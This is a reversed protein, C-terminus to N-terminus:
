HTLCRIMLRLQGSWRCTAARTQLKRWRLLRVVIRVNRVRSFIQRSCWALNGILGVIFALAVDLKLGYLKFGM